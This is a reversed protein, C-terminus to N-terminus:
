PSTCDRTIRVVELGSPLSVREGCGELRTVFKGPADFEFPWSDLAPALLVVDGPACKLEEESMLPRLNKGYGVHPFLITQVVVRPASASREIEARVDRELEFKPTVSRAYGYWFLPFAATALLAATAWRGGRARAEILGLMVFPVLAVPYYTSYDHMSPNSSAGLMVLTPLMGALARLSLFPLFLTPLAVMWWGSTAMLSAFRLPHTIIGVVIQKPTNGFDAWFSLYAPGASALAPQIKAVYTWLWGLCIATITAALRGQARDRLAAGIVFAPIVLAADEKVLLAAITAAITIVPKKEVWGVIM